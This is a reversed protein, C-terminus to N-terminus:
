LCDKDIVVGELQQVGEVGRVAALARVERKFYNALFTWVRKVVLRRTADHFVVAEGFYGRGLFTKSCGRTQEELAAATLM